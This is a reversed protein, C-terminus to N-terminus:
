SRVIFRHQIDHFPYRAGGREEDQESPKQKIAKSLFQRVDEHISQRPDRHRQERDRVHGENNKDDKVYERM